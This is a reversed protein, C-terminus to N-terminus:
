RRFSSGQRSALSATMGGMTLLQANVEASSLHREPRPRCVNQSLVHNALFIRLSTKKERMHGEGATGPWRFTMGDGREAEHLAALASPQQQQQVTHRACAEGGSCPM